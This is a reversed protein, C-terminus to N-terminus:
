LWDDLDVSVSSSIYAKDLMDLSITLDGENSEKVEIRMYEEWDPIGPEEDSWSDHEDPETKINDNNAESDTMTNSLAVTYTLSHRM